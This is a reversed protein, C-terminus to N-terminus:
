KPVASLNGTKLSYIIIGLMFIWYILSFISFVMGIISTVLGATAMGTPAIKKQKSYLVLGVISCIIGIIPFWALVISIIGLIMSALGNGTPEGEDSM